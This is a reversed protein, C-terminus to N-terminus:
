DGGGDGGSEGASDNSGTGWDSFDFSCPEDSAEGNFILAWVFLLAIGIIWHENKVLLYAGGPSCQSQWM